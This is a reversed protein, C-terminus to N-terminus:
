AGPEPTQEWLQRMDVGSFITILLTLAGYAYIGPDAAVDFFTHAKVIAVLAGLVFVESMTWPGIRHLIVMLPAFGPARRGARAFWLLWGMVLMKIMPFFFLTAAALVSVVQADQQWMVDIMGWLTTARYQGNLGLTFIPWVNAQVFVIMSTLILALLANTTLVRHRDLEAGCRTCRAVEGRELPRRRYVTDCHECVLLAAPAPARM